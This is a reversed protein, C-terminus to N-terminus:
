FARVYLFLIRKKFSLTKLIENRFRRYLHYMEKQVESPLKENSFAAKEAWMYLQNWETETIQPFQIEIEQIRERETEKETQFGAFVCLEYIANYISLVGKNGKKQKFSKLRKARRIRQQFVIVLDIILVGGVTSVIRFVIQKIVKEDSGDSIQNETSTDEFLGGQSDNEESNDVNEQEQQPNDENNEPIQSNGEQLEEDVDLDDESIQNYNNEPLVADESSSPTFEKVIWGIESDFVECWAHASEDTVTARYTGDEYRSFDSPSVAYGEVYRAPYGCMQYVLTAATAFHVCFGVQRGFMFGEAFDMDVPMKGPNKSYYCESGFYNKLAGEVNEQNISDCYKRLLTLDRYKGTYAEKVFNRYSQWLQSAEALRISDRFYGEVDMGYYSSLVNFDNYGFIYEGYWGGRSAAAYFSYERKNNLNGKIYSDKHVDYEETIEACYPAYGFERSANVLKITINQVVPEKLYYQYFYTDDYEGEAVRRFPENLLDRREKSGGIRPLIEALEGASIEEWSDGTYESAVYAKLYLTDVPMESMVVEMAVEGTPNVSANKSLEGKSIGGAFNETRNNLGSIMDEWDSRGTEQSDIFDNRIQNYEELHMNKYNTIMPQTVTSIMIIVALAGAAWSLGKVSFSSNQGRYVILYLCTAVLMFWWNQSMPMKGIIASFIVPLAIILVSLLIGKKRELVVYLISGLITGLFFVAVIASYETAEAIMTAKSDRYYQNFLEIFKNIYSVIGGYLSKRLLIGIIVLIVIGVSLIKKRHKRNWMLLLLFLTTIGLATIIQFASIGIEFVSYYASFVALLVIYVVAAQVWNETIRRNERQNRISLGTM